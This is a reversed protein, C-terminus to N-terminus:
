GWIARNLTKLTQGGYLINSLKGAPNFIFTAPVGRIDGLHLQPGPDFQLSPYHIKYKEILAKQNALSVKDYNVAFLAVKDKKNKYFQNFENIEDICPQCWSAWYNIFVWKGKLSEFAIEHGSTDKLIINSSHSYTTFVLGIFLPLILHLCHM